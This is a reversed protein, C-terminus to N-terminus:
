QDKGGIMLLKKNPPSSTRAISTNFPSPVGAFGSAIIHSALPHLLRAVVSQL